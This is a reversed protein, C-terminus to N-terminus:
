TSVPWSPFSKVRIILGKDLSKQCLILSICHL